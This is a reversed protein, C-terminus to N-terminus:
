PAPCSARTAAVTALFTPTAYRLAAGRAAAACADDHSGALLTASLLLDLAPETPRNDANQRALALARPPDQGLGLYFLAAHDAFALPHAKVLEDYRSKARAIPAKADEARGLRRLADADGADVEPDDTKGVLPELIALAEPPTELGALHVAAHAYGPLATHAEAFYLKARTRDGQRELLSGRQFDMWAVPFPSVDHYKVRAREFLQESDAPQAREGALVAAAALGMADLTDTNAWAGTAAADDFRGQAMLITARSSRVADASAKLREAADLEALQAAFLHFTGLTSAHALHADGSEPHAAVLAAAVADAREYDAIRSAYQGRALLLEVLSCSAHVDNADRALMQERSQIQVDLNSLALSPDTTRVRSLTSAASAPPAAGGDLVPADSAARKTCAAASALLVLVVASCRRNV